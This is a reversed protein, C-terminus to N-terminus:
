LTIVEKEHARAQEDVRTQARANDAKAQSLEAVLAEIREAFAPVRAAESEFKARELLASECKSRWDEVERRLGQLGRRAYLAGLLAGALLGLIESMWIMQESGELTIVLSADTAIASPLSPARAMRLRTCITFKIAPACAGPSNFVSANVRTSSC